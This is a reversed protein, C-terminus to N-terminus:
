TGRAERLIGQEAGDQVRRPHGHRAAPRRGQRVAGRDRQGVEGARVARRQLRPCAIDPKREASLLQQDPQRVPAGRSAGARDARRAAQVRRGPAPLRQALGFLRPDIAPTQIREHPKLKAILPPSEGAAYDLGSERNKRIRFLFSPILRKKVGPRSKARSAAPLRHGRAPM